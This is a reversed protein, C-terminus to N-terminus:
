LGAALEVGHARHAEGGARADDLRASNSVNVPGTFSPPTEMLRVMAEILADVYCFSRTQTGDGHSTSPERCLPLM